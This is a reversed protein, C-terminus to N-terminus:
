RHDAGALLILDRYVERRASASVAGALLEQVVVAHLVVNALSGVTFEGLAAAKSADRIAEVYLNSDLVFRM